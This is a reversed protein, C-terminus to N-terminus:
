PLSSCTPFATGMTTSMTVQMETPAGAPSFSGSGYQLNTYSVDINRDTTGPGTTELGVEVNDAGQAAHNVCKYLVGGMYLVWRVAYEGIPCFERIIKFTPNAGASYKDLALDLCHYIGGVQWDSYVTWKADYDDACADSGVGKATGIAVFDGGGAGVDMYIPHVYGIGQVTAPDTRIHQNGKFRDVTGSYSWWQQGVDEGARVAAATMACLVAVLLFSAQRATRGRFRAIRMAETSRWARSGWM